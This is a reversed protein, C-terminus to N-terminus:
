RRRSVMVSASKIAAPDLAITGPSVTFAPIHNRSGGLASWNPRDSPMSSVGSGYALRSM